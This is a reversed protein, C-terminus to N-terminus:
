TGGYEPGPACRRLYYGEMGDADCIRLKEIGMGRMIFQAIIAGPIIVDHRKKLLPHAARAEGMGELKAILAEIDAAGLMVGSVRARDYVLLDEHLAALTTLTGGVGAWNRVRLRAFRFLARCRDEIADRYRLEAARVCGIPQSQVFSDTVIQASGGGIDILGESGAGLLANRAEEEGSLLEARLGCEREMRSLFQERNKADRVASTAYACVRGGKQRAENAFQWIAELSARMPEEALLGSKDLGAALRTTVLRKKEFVGEDSVDMARVSNSGVDIVTWM